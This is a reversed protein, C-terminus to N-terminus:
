YEDDLDDDDDDDLDDDVGYIAYSKTKTLEARIKAKEEETTLAEEKEEKLKLLYEIDPRM